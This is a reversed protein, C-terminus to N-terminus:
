LYIASRTKIAVKNSTVTPPASVRARGVKDGVDELDDVRLEIDVLVDIGDHISVDVELELLDVVVLATEVFVDDDELVLVDEALSLLLTALVLLEVPVDVDLLVDVDVLDTLAVDLIVLDDVADVVIDSDDRADLLAVIEADPLAVERLVVDELPVDVVLLVPLVVLLEDGDEVEDCVTDEDRELEPVV